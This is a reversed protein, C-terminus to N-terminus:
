VRLLQLQALSPPAPGGEPAPATTRHDADPALAQGTPGPLPVPLVPGDGVAGSACNVDAHQPQGADADGGHCASVTGADAADVGPAELATRAHGAPHAAPAPVAIAHQGSPPTVGGPGLGHMGLLGVLLGFVLLASWRLPPASARHLRARASM